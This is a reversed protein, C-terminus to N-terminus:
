FTPYNLRQSPAFSGTIGPLSFLGDASLRKPDQCLKLKVGSRNRPFHYPPAFIRQPHRHLSLLKAFPSVDIHAPTEPLGSCSYRSVPFPVNRRDLTRRFCAPLLTTGRFSNRGKYSYGRFSINMCPNKKTLPDNESFSIKSPCFIHQQKRSPLREHCCNRSLGAAPYPISVFIPFPFM